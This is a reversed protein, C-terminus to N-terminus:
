TRIEVLCMGVPITVQRSETNPEQKSFNVKCKGRGADNCTAAPDNLLIPPNSLIM